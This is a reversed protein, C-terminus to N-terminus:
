CLKCSRSFDCFNLLKWKTKTQKQQQVQTKGKTVMGWCSPPLADKLIVIVNLESVWETCMQM